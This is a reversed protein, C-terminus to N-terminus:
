KIKISIDIFEKSANKAKIYSYEKLLGINYLIEKNNAANINNTILIEFIEEIKSFTIKNQTFADNIVGM